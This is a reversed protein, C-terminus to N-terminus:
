KKEGLATTHVIRANQQPVVLGGVHFVEMVARRRSGDRVISSSANFSLYGYTRWTMDSLFWTEIAFATNHGLPLEWKRSKPVQKFRWCMCIEARTMTKTWTMRTQQCYMCAAVQMGFIGASPRQFRGHHFLWWLFHLQDHPWRKSFSTRWGQCSPCFRKVTKKKHYSQFVYSTQDNIIKMQSNNDKWKKEM